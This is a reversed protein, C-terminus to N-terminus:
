SLIILFIIQKECNSNNKSVYATYIKEKKAYLLNLAITIHNKENKKRDNKESLFNTRKFNYKNKFPKIKTIRQPDKNMEEYILAVVVVYQFCKNYKKNVSSIEAKQM